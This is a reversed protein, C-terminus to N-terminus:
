WARPAPEALAAASEALLAWGRVADRQAAFDSGQPAAAIQKSLALAAAAADELQTALQRSGSDRATTMLLSPIGQYASRAGATLDAASGTTGLAAAARTFSAASDTFVSTITSAPLPQM